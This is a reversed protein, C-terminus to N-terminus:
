FEEKVIIWFIIRRRSVESSITETIRSGLRSLHRFFIEFFWSLQEATRDFEKQCVCSSGRELREYMLLCVDVDREM